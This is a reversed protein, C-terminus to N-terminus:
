FRNPTRTLNQEFLNMMTERGNAFGGDLLMKRYGPDRLKTLLQQRADSKWAVRGIPIQVFDRPSRALTEAISAEDRQSFHALAGLLEYEHFIDEANGLGLFSPGWKVM